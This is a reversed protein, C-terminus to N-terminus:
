YNFCVTDAGGTYLSAATWKNVLEQEATFTGDGEELLNALYSSPYSGRSMQQQVFRYPKEITTLLTKKWSDGTKKFGAGPFWTPLHKV